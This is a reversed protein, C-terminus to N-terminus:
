PKETPAVSPTPVVDKASLVTAPPAGKDIAAALQTAPACGQKCLSKVRALNEKARELAGKEVMAQGQGSLAQVDTPDLLLAEGYLRIAKGQLGQTRAIQGLAVYVARNRPDAALASEYADNAAEYRGARQAEDGAKQWEISLPDIQTDPKQSLGVSSVTALVAALAISAPTFRM